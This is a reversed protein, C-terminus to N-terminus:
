PMPPPPGQDPMTMRKTTREESSGSSSRLRKTRSRPGFTSSAAAGDPDEASQARRAADAAPTMMQDIVDALSTQNVFDVLQNVRSGDTCYGTFILKGPSDFEYTTGTPKFHETPQRWISHHFNHITNDEATRKYKIEAKYWDGSKLTHISDVSWGANSWEEKMIPVDEEWLKWNIQRWQHVSSMQQVIDRFSVATIASAQM